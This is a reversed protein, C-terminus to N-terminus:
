LRANRDWSCYCVVSTALFESAGATLLASSKRQATEAIDVMEPVQALLPPAGSQELLRLAVVEWTSENTSECQTVDISPCCHLM